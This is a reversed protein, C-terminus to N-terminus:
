PRLWIKVGNEWEEIATKAITVNHNMLAANNALINVPGLKKKITAFGAHVEEYDSVDMKVAVSKRGLAMIKEAISQAWEMHDFGSAAISAGNKAAGSRYSLCEGM